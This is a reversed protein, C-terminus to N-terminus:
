SRGFCRHVARCQRLCQRVSSHMASCLGAYGRMASPDCGQLAKGLGTGIHGFKTEQTGFDKGSFRLTNFTASVQAFGNLAASSPVFKTDGSM